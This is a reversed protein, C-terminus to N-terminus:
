RAAQMRRHLQETRQMALTAMGATIAANEGGSTAKVQCVCGVNDAMIAVAGLSMGIGDCHHQCQASADKPVSYGSTGVPAKCGLVLSAVCSLLALKRKTM